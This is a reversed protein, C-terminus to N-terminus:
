VCQSPCCTSVALLASFLLNFCFLLKVADRGRSSEVSEVPQFSDVTSCSVQSCHAPREPRFLFHQTQARETLVPGIARRDIRAGPLGSLLISFSPSISLVPRFFPVSLCLCLSVTCFLSRFISATSEASHLAFTSRFLM